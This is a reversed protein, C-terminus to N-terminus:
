HVLMVSKPWCNLSILSILYTSHEKKKKRTSTTNQVNFNSHIWSLLSKAKSDSVNTTCLIHRILHSKAHGPGAPSCAGTPRSCAKPTFGCVAWASRTEGERMTWQTWVDGVSIPCSWFPFPFRSLLSHKRNRTRSDPQFNTSYFSNFNQAWLLFIFFFILM